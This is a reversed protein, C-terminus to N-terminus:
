YREKVGVGDLPKITALKQGCKQCYHDTKKMKDVVLPVWCIPFFVVATVAVAGWTVATPYTKTTTRVNKESCHPCFPLNTPKRRGALCPDRELTYSNRESAPKEYGGRNTPEMIERIDTEGVSVYSTDTLSATGSPSETKHNNSVM